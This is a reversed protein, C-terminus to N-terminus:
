FLEKGCFKFEFSIGIPVRYGLEKEIKKRLFYGFTWRYWLPIKVEFYFKAGEIKVIRVWEIFYSLSKVFDLIEKTTYLVRKHPM